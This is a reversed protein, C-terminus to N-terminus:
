VGFLLYTSIGWNDSNILRQGPQISLIDEESSSIGYWKPLQFAFLENKRELYGYAFYSFFITPLAGSLFCAVNWFDTLVTGPKSRLIENEWLVDELLIAWWHRNLRCYLHFTLFVMWLQKHSFKSLRLNWSLLKSTAWKTVM